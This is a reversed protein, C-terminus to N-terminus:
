SCVVEKKFSHHAALNELYVKVLVGKFDAGLMVNRIFRAKILYVNNLDVDAKFGCVRGDISFRDWM